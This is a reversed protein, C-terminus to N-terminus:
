HLSVCHLLSCATNVIGVFPRLGSRVRSSSRLTLFPILTLDLCSPVLFSALVNVAAILMTMM